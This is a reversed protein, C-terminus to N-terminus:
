AARLRKQAAAYVEKLKKAIEQLESIEQENYEIFSNQGVAMFPGRDSDSIRPM